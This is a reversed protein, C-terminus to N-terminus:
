LDGGGEVGKKVTVYRSYATSQYGLYDEATVTIEFVKGDVSADYVHWAITDDADEFDVRQTGTNDGWNIYLYRLGWSRNTFWDPFVGGFWAQGEADYSYNHDDYDTPDDPTSSSTALTGDAQELTEQDDTGDLTFWAVDPIEMSRIVVSVTQLTGLNGYVVDDPVWEDQHDDGPGLDFNYFPVDTEVYQVLGGVDDGDPPNGIEFGAVPPHNYVKVTKTISDSDGENDTVVLTVSFVESTTDTTFVHEKETASIDSTASGDGFSWTYLIITRGEDAESDTPDFHVQFPAVGITHDIDFRASPAGSTGPTGGGGTTTISIGRTATGTKGDTGRITLTATYTASGTSFYTHTATPGSWTSGDGFDWAYSSITGADYSSASANFSVTLPSTGSTPSATFSATPGAPEGPLVYITKQTTVSEGDDDTVRLVVVYTGAVDYTHAVAEGSGSTGDGFDWDFRAIVGDEDSSLVASFNVTFPVQGTQASTTFAAVPVANFLWCGGLWLVLPVLLAGALVGRVLWGRKTRSNM